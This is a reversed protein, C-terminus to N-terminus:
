LHARQQNSWFILLLPASIDASGRELLLVSWAFRSALQLAPGKLEVLLLGNVSRCVVGGGDCITDPVSSAAFTLDDRATSARSVERTLQQGM